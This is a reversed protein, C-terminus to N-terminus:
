NIWKFGTSEEQSGKIEFNEESKKRIFVEKTRQNNLNIVNQEKM